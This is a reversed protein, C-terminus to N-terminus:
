EPQEQDRAAAAALSLVRLAMRAHGQITPPPSAANAHDRRPLCAVAGLSPGLALEGDGNVPGSGPRHTQGTGRQFPRAATIESPNLEGRGPSGRWPPTSMM